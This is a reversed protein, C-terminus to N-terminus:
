RGTGPNDNVNEPVDDGGMGPNDGPEETEGPEDTPEADSEVDLEKSAVYYKTSYPLADATTGIYELDANYVFLKDDIDLKVTNGSSNLGITDLYFITDIDPYQTLTADDESKVKQSAQAYYKKGEFVKANITVGNGVEIELNKIYAKAEFVPTDYTYVYDDDEAVDQKENSLTGYFEAENGIRSKKSTLYVKFKFDLDKTSVYKEVFKINIYATQDKNYKIEVKDIAKSGESIKTKVDIKNAADTVYRKTMADNTGPILLAIKITSAPGISDCDYAIDTGAAIFDFSANLSTNPAAFTMPAIGIVLMAALVLALVKKM